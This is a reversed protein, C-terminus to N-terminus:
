FTRTNFRSNILPFNTVYGHKSAHMSLTISGHYHLIRSKIETSIERSQRQFLIRRVFELERTKLIWSIKTRLKWRQSNLSAISTIILNTFEHVSFYRDYSTLHKQEEESLFNLLILNLQFTARLQWSRVACLFGLLFNIFQPPLHGINRWWIRGINRWGIEM